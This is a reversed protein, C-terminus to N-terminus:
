GIVGRSGGVGTGMSARSGAARGAERAQGNYTNYSTSKTTKGITDAIFESVKAEERVLVLGMGTERVVEKKARQLRTQIETAFGLLFNNKWTKGHVGAPIDKECAILESTMQVLLSTFMSEVIGVNSEFGFLSYSVTDGKGRVKWPALVQCSNAKAVVALLMGKARIYPVVLPVKVVIPRSSMPRADRVMAEDISYQTMLRQAGEFFAKAEDPFTSAEAKALLGRIKDLKATSVDDM